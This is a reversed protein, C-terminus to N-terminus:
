KFMAGLLMQLDEAQKYSGRYIDIFPRDIFNDGDWCEHYIMEKIMSKLTDIEALLTHRDRDAPCETEPHERFDEDGEWNANYWDNDRKKIDDM